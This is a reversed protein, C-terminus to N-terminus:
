RSMGVDLALQCYCVAPDASSDSCVRVKHSRGRAMYSGPELEIDTASCPDAM